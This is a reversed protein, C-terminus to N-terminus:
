TNIPYTENRHADFEEAIEWGIKKIMVVTSNILNCSGIRPLLGVIDRFSGFNGKTTRYKKVKEKVIATAGANTISVNFVDALKLTTNVLIPVVIVPLAVSSNIIEECKIRESETMAM